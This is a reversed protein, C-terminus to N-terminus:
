GKFRYNPEFYFNSGYSTKAHNEILNSSKLKKCQM